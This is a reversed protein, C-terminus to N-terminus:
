KLLGRLEAKIAPMVEPKIAELGPRLWPRPAMKRTGIELFLPYPPDNIPSGYKMSPKSQDVEHTLSTMLRSSDVAPYEGPKSPGPRAAMKAKAHNVMQYGLKDLARVIGAQIQREYYTGNWQKVPM